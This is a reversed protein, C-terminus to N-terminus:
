TDSQNAAQQMLSRLFARGRHQALARVFAVFLWWIKEMEQMDKHVNKYDRGLVKALARVSTPGQDYVANLAEM